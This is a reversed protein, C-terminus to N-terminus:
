VAPPKARPLSPGTSKAANRRNAARQKDTTMLKGRNHKQLNSALLSALNYFDDNLHNGTNLNTIQM